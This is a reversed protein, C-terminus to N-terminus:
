LFSACFLSCCKQLLRIHVQERVLYNIKVHQRKAINRALEIAQPSYDCGTLNVFGKKAQKFCDVCNRIDQKKTKCTLPDYQLGVFPM